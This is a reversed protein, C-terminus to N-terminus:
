YRWGCIGEWHLELDRLRAGKGAGLASVRYAVRKMRSSGGSACLREGISKIEQQARDAAPRDPRYLTNFRQILEVLQHSLQEDEGGLSSRGEAEMIREDDERLDVPRPTTPAPPELRGVKQVDLRTQDYRPRLDAPIEKGWPLLFSPPLAHGKNVKANAGFWVWEDYDRESTIHWQVVLDGCKPCFVRAVDDGYGPPTHRAAGPTEQCTYADSWVFNSGCAACTAPNTPNDCVSQRRRLWELVPM